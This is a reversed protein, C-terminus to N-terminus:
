KAKQALLAKGKLQRTKRNEWVVLLMSANFISSYTGSAIGVLLVMLLNRIPDGVFLWVAV